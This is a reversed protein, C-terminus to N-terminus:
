LKSMYNQIINNVQILNSKKLSEINNIKLNTVIGKGTKLNEFHLSNICCYNATYEEISFESSEVDKKIGKICTIFFDEDIDTSGFSNLERSINPIIKLVKECTKNDQFLTGLYLGDSSCTVPFPIYFLNISSIVM